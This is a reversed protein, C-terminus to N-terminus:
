PSPILDSLGEVGMGRELARGRVPEFQNATPSYQVCYGSFPVPRCEYTKGDKPQLVVTGAKYSAVNDPFIFDHPGNSDAADSELMLDLVDQAFLTGDKNTAYYKLMHHGATVDTLTM